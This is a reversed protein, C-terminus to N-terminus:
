QRPVLAVWWIRHLSGSPARRDNAYGCDQTTRWAIQLQAQGWSAATGGILVLRVAQWMRWGGLDGASGLKGSRELGMGVRAWFGRRCLMWPFATTLCCVLNM